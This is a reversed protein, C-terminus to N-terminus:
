TALGAAHERLHASLGGFYDSHRVAEDETVTALVGLLGSHAEDWRLLVTQIPQDAAWAAERANHVDAAPWEGAPVYGSGFRWGGPIATGRLMHLIVPVAAEEWFAVHGLMEKLAWGSVPLGDTGRRLAENV